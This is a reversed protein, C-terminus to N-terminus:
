NIKQNEKKIIVEIHKLLDDTVTTFPLMSYYVTFETFPLHGKFGDDFVEDVVVATLSAGNVIAIMDETLQPYKERGEKVCELLKDKLKVM